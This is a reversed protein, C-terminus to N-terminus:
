DMDVEFPNSDWYFILEPFLNECFVKMMVALTIVNRPDSEAALRANNKGQPMSPVPNIKASLNKMSTLGVSLGGTTQGRRMATERAAELAIEKLEEKSMSMSAKEFGIIQTKIKETAIDDIKPPRGVRSNEFIAMANDGYTKYIKLWQGFTAKPIGHSVAFRDQGMKEPNNFQFAHCFWYKLEPTKDLHALSQGPRLNLPGNIVPTTSSM